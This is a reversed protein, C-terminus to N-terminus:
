LDFGPVDQDDIGKALNLEAGTVINFKPRDDADVVKADVAM